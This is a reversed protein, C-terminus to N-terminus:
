RKEEIPPQERKEPAPAPPSIESLAARGAKLNSLITIVEANDPNLEQIRGFQKIAEDKKGQTDYILGLFYRANSYDPSLSVTREFVFAANVYDKKQYYLLGLQFLVGVDNPSILFAQGTRKIAEDLNGEQAEIQALLFHAATFDNKLEIASNLFNRASELNNLQIEVRASTLLSTPNHPDLALVAKYSNLAAQEAGEVQFPIISEYIQGLLMQNLPELPNTNVASQANQITAALINQFQIRKQEVPMQQNAVRSLRILGLQGLSNYYRDQTDFQLAKLFYGEAKDLNGESNYAIVGNSYMYVAWYKQFMTYFSAVGVIILLVVVLASVFGVSTNNVFSFEKVKVKQAKILMALFLGTVLFALAFLFNNTTYIINFVWLYAAGLFTGLLLCRTVDSGSYYISRFGYYLITALFFLWALVGFIGLTAFFSPISGIGGTFRADWLLTRNIDTPKHKLWDYLFTNPGSGLVMNKVGERLTDTAVQWTATWSLRVDLSNIGLAAVFDGVLIKALVFFIVIFILFLPLRAFHRTEKYSSYLYVLFVLMFAGFVMWAATFNVIAMMVFSAAIIGALFYKLRRKSAFFEFFIVTELAIFGFFIALENWNGVLSDIKRPLLGWPSLSLGFITHLLQYVFVVVSSCILVFFFTLIKQESQFLSTVLFLGIVAILSSVLTDTENGSGFVSLSFNPSFLASAFSAALLLLLALFLVSWPIKISGKELLYILYFISAGIIATHLLLSKSFGLTAGSFPLIWLPLLAVLGLILYRAVKEWDFPSSSREFISKSKEEKNFSIEIKEEVEVNLEDDM